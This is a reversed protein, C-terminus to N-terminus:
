IVRCKSRAGQNTGPPQLHCARCAAAHLRFRPTGCLTHQGLPLRVACDGQASHQSPTGQEAPAASASRTPPSLQDRLQSSQQKGKRRRSSSSSGGWRRLRRCRFLAADDPRGTGLWQLVAVPCQGRRRAAGAGGRCAYLWRQRRVATGLWGREGGVQEELEELEDDSQQEPEPEDAAYVQKNAGRYSKSGEPGLHM